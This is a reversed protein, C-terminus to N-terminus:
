AKALFAALADLTADPEEAMMMHGCGRLMVLQAGNIQAALKAGQRAPTMRDVEGAIVLAPCRVKTAAEAGGRYAACAALDRRLRPGAAERLLLLAHGLMWSGPARHGGVHGAPGFGWDCIMEPALLDREGAAELLAPHVPMSPAAGLLALGSVLEPRRAALELCVLAGMSHGILAAPRGLAGIADELDSVFRETSIPYPDEVDRGRHWPADYTYAEGLRALWPLQRSWTSGRGMLGHLLVLPEGGGGRRTLVEAHM